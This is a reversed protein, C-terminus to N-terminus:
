GDFKKVPKAFVLYDDGVHVQQNWSCNEELSAAREEATEIEPQSSESRRCSSNNMNERGERGVM